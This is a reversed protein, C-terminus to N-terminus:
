GAGEEPAPLPEAPVDPEPLPTDVAPGGGGGGGDGGGEGSGGGVGPLITDPTERTPLLDASSGVVVLQGEELGSRIEAMFDNMLGVEVPVVEPIGDEGLVEVKYQRDEQFVAELPVLLVDEARGADIFAQAQMGPRLEPGGEVQIRVQFFTFGSQDQGSP